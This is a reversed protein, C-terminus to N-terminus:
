FINLLLVVALAIKDRTRRRLKNLNMFLYLNGFYGRMLGNKVVSTDELGLITAINIIQNRYWKDNILRLRKRAAVFSNNTGVQNDQHQRYRMSPNPDIYWSYGNRRAFAYILWDHLSVKRVIIEHNKRLWEQFAIGLEQRIVYTCGPGAAEFLYDWHRQPQAKDILIERGDEWFATVNSSYADARNKTISDLAHILKRPSWVDDQDAFAVYDYCDFNVSLILKFFNQGAGGSSQSVPFSFVNTYKSCLNEVIVDTGDVSPDLRVFIDVFIDEQSLITEIQEEIYRAGNYAALLVCFRYM